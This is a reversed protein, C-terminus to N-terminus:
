AAAPETGSVIITSGINVSYRTAVMHIGACVGCECVRVCGVSECM